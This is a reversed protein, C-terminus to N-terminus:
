VTDSPVSVSSVPVNVTVTLIKTGLTVLITKSSVEIASFPLVAVRVPVILAAWEFSTM